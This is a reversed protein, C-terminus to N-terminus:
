GIKYAIAEGKAIIEGDRSVKLECFVVRKGYVVKAEAILVENVFAARYFDIKISIAARRVNDSNAAIAFAFDALAIIYSGHASGHFNLFEDRVIGKVRAYGESVELIEAGLFRRFKDKELFGM